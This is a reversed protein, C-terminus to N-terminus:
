IGIGHLSQGATLEVLKFRLLGTKTSFSREGIHGVMGFIGEVIGACLGYTTWSETVGLNKPIIPDRIAVAVAGREMASVDFSALGWGSTRLEDEAAILMAQQSTGPLSRRLSRTLALGSQRGTAFLVLNGSDEPLKSFAAEVDTLNEASTIVVRTGDLAVVPFLFRNYRSIGMETGDASQVSLLNRLLAVLAEVSCDSSELGVNASIIFLKTEPMSPSELGYLEIKHERFLGLMMELAEVHDKGVVVLETVRRAHPQKTGLIRPLYEAPKPPLPM